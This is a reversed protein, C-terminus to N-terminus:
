CKIFSEANTKIARDDTEYGGGDPCLPSVVCINHKTTWKDLCIALYKATQKIDGANYFAKAVKYEDFDGYKTIDDYDFLITNIQEQKERLSRIIDSTDAAECIIRLLGDRLIAWGALMYKYLEAKRESKDECCQAYYLICSGFMNEDPLLKTYKKGQEAYGAFRAYACYMSIYRDREFFDETDNILEDLLRCMEQKEERNVPVGASNVYLVTALQQKLMKVDPYLRVGNRLISITHQRLNETKQMDSAWKCYADSYIHIESQKNNIDIGLLEDSSVGFLNCLPAILSIDPSSYGTEWKSVAQFSICLMEALKEQTLNNKDTVGQNKTRNAYYGGKRQRQLLVFLM